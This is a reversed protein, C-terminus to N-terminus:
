EFPKAVDAVIRLNAHHCGIVDTAAYIGAFSHALQLAVGFRNAVQLQIRALLRRKPLGRRPM